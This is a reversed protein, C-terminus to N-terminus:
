YTEIFSELDMYNPPPSYDAMAMDDAFLECYLNTGAELEPSWVSSPPLLLLPHLGQTEETTDSAALKLHHPEITPSAFQSYQLTTFSDLFGGMPFNPLESFAPMLFIDSPSAFFINAPTSIEVDDDNSLDSATSEPSHMSHTLDTPHPDETSTIQQPPNIVQTYPVDEATPWSPLTKAVVSKDQFVVGVVGCLERWRSIEEVSCTGAYIDVTTASISRGRKIVYPATRKGKSPSKAPDEAHFFEKRLLPDSMVKEYFRTFSVDNLCAADPNDKTRTWNQPRPRGKNKL